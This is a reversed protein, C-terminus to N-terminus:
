LIVFLCMWSDTRIEEFISSIDDDRKLIAVGRPNYSFDVNGLQYSKNGVSGIEIYNKYFKKSDQVSGKQEEGAGDLDFL